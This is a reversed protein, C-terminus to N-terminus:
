YIKAWDKFVESGGASTKDFRGCRMYCHLANGSALHEPLYFQFVLYQSGGTRTASLAIGATQGTPVESPQNIANGQVNFVGLEATHLM